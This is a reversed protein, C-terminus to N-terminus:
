ETIPAGARVEFQQSPIGISDLYQKAAQVTDGPANENPQVLIVPSHFNILSLTYNSEQIPLISQLKLVTPNIRQSKLGIRKIEIGEDAQDTLYLYASDSALALQSVPRNFPTNAIQKSQRSSVNNIWITDANGYAFNDNDIWRPSISGNPIAALLKFKTDFIGSGEDSIIALYTGDPSWVADYASGEKRAVVKDGDLLLTEGEEEGHSSKDMVAVLDNHAYISPSKANLSVSLKEAKADKSNSNLRYLSGQDSFYVLGNPSASYRTESTADFPLTLPSFDGSVYLYFRGATAQVVARRSDIWQIDQLQAPSPIISNTNNADIRHLTGEESNLYILQSPSANINYADTKYAVPEMGTTNSTQLEVTAHQLPGLHVTKSVGASNGQATVVYDGPSLSFKQGSSGTVQFKPNGAKTLTITKGSGASVTLWAHSFVYWLAFLSIVAAFIAILRTRTMTGGKGNRGARLCAASSM